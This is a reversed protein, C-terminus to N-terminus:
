SRCFWWPPCCRRRTSPRGDSSPYMDVFMGSPFLAERQEALFAYVSREPVLERCVEWVDPGSLGRAENGQMCVLRAGAGGPRPWFGLMKLLSRAIDLVSCLRKVGFRRKFDAVFQFRNM